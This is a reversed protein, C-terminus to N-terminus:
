TCQTHITLLTLCQTCCSSVMICMVQATTTSDDSVSICCYSIYLAVVVVTYFSKLLIECQWMIRCNLVRINIITCYLMLLSVYRLDDAMSSQNSSKRKRRNRPDLRQEAARAKLKRIKEFDQYITITV